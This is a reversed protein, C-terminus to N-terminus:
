VAGSDTKFPTIKLNRDSVDMKKSVMIMQINGKVICDAMQKSQRIFFKFRRQFGVLRKRVAQMKDSFAVLDTVIVVGDGGDPIGRDLREFADRIHTGDQDAAHVPADFVVVQDGPQRLM